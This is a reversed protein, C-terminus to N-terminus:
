PLSVQNSMFSMQDEDTFSFLAAYFPGTGVGTLTITYPEGASAGLIEGHVRAAWWNTESENATFAESIPQDSYVVHVYVAGRPVTFRLTVDGGSRQASLDEVVAPVGIPPTNERAYALLRGEWQGTWHEFEGYPGTGEEPVGTDLYAMVHNWHAVLGSHWYYWVQPDVLTLGTGGSTGLEGEDIWYSFNGYNLNWAFIASLLQFAEARTQADHDDVEQILAIVQRTLYGAGGAWDHPLGTESNYSGTYMGTRASIRERLGQAVYTRMKDLLSLDGTVRFAALAHGLAHGTGRSSFDEFLEVRDLRAKRFEGVFRYWDRVWPNGSYWYLQEVHYFWGHQDDRAAANRGTGPLYVVPNNQARWHGGAYHAQTLGLRAYDEDYRYQALWQPRANLEGIAYAEALFYDAPAGTVMFRQGTDPWGGTGASYRKRGIDVLFSGWGFNYANDTLDLSEESYEPIRRDDGSAPPDAPIVGDLDLSVGAQRYWSLPVVPVPHYQFTRALRTLDEETAGGDHFLLLIEKYVHQMDDLWYLGESVLGPRCLNTEGECDDDASCWTSPTETCVYGLQRSWDPWLEMSLRNAADVRIGNPWTQWFNRVVAAVGRDGESVDLFGEAQAGTELSAMSGLDRVVFTDHAEQALVVGDERLRQFATSDGLGVRVVSADGFTLDLNVAMSQFYLPNAFGCGVTDEGVCEPYGPSYLAPGKASNQLQYDVKLYPKGAYAYIRVAFGHRHYEGPDDLDGDNNADNYQAPVEVRIVARLPGAEEIDVTPTGMSSDREIEGGPYRVMEGGAEPSPAVLLETSEFTGSGDLDLSLEDIVNFRQKHVFFRLPGTVVEVREAGDTVTVPTEPPEPPGDARLTYETEGDAGVTAQFHLMVHRISGDRGPWRNLVQVQAPVDMGLNDVEQCYGYPLPIVATVPFGDAGVSATEKVTIRVPPLEVCRPAPGADPVDVVTADPRARIDDDGCAAVGLLELIAVGATLWFYRTTM